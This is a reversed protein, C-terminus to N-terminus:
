SEAPLIIVFSKWCPRLSRLNSANVMEGAWGAGTPVRTQGLLVDGQIVRSRLRTLPADRRSPTPAPLFLFKQAMRM